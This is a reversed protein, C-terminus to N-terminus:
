IKKAVNQKEVVEPSFNLAGKCNSRKVSNFIINYM